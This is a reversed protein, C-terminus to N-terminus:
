KMVTKGAGDMWSMNGCLRIIDRVRGALGVRLPASDFDGIGEYQKLLIYAQV